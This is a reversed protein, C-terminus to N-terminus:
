LSARWRMFYVGSGLVVMLLLVLGIANTAPVDDDYLRFVYASGSNTGNDDDYDAGVLATDGDLAVAIGFRDSNVGDSPLLKAQETWVGATRTFVYASGPDFHHDEHAGILATDGDLAVSVGFLDEAAGDSPLLKAQETWVGATRTFVYASGSDWGNDDDEHAGILATDGDLAVSGGFNDGGDGDSALLKARQTWAAGTGTFVYVSGSAAGNDDDGWAGIVATDGELAVDIGFQDYGAGDAALLKARETWVGGSGTFVYAAGSYGGNDNDGYAGIIATRGDLAVSSGFRKWAAGDAPVIKARQGWVGGARTFVWVSGSDSGNHDHRLAGILATDGDVAVADGFYDGADGYVPILRAQAHWDGGARIFVYASGSWSWSGNGDDAPAGILATDGDFAVSWGFHAFGWEGPLLKAEQEVTLAWAPLLCMAVLVPLVLLYRM